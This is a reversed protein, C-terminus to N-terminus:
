RRAVFYVIAIPRHSSIFISMQTTWHFACLSPHKVVPSVGRLRPSETSHTHTSLVNQFVTGIATGVVVVVLWCGVVVVM